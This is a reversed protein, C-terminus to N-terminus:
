ILTKVIEIFNEEFKKLSFERGRNLVREQLDIFDNRSLNAIEYIAEAIDEITRFGIGYKGRDVIDIWPGSSYGRYVIPIAGALMGEVVAIGFPEFRKAHIIAKAKRLLTWKEIESVNTLIYVSDELSYQKIKKLLYHFYKRDVLAGIIFLKIDNLRRKIRAFADIVLGHNKSPSIVGLSVINNEKVDCSIKDSIHPTVVPPYLIYSNVNWTKRIYISTITSNAVVNINKITSIDNMCFYRSLFLKRFVREKLLEFTNVIESDLSDYINFLIRSAYPFHSYVLVESDVREWDLPPIDDFLIILHPRYKDLVDKVMKLYQSYAFLRLRLYPSLREDTYYKVFLSKGLYASLNTGHIRDLDSIPLGALAFLGVRYGRKLLINAIHLTTRVGGGFNNFLNIIAVLM